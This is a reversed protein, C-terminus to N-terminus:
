HRQRRSSKEKLHEYQLPRERRFLERLRRAKSQDEEKRAAEKGPELSPSIKLSAQRLSLGEELVLRELEGFYTRDKPYRARRVPGASKDPWIRDFDAAPLTIRRWIEWRNSKLRLVDSEWFLERSGDWYVDVVPRSQPSSHQRPVDDDCKPKWSRPATYYEGTAVITGDYLRNILENEPDGYGRESLLRYARSLFITTPAPM